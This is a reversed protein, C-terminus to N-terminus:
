KGEHMIRLVATKDPVRATEGVDSKGFGPFTEGVVSHL